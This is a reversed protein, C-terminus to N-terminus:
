LHPSQPGYPHSRTYHTGPQSTVPGFSSGLNGSMYEAGKM